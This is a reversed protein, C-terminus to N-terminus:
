QSPQGVFKPVSSESIGPGVGLQGNLHDGWCVVHGGNVIACAHRSGLAVESLGVFGGILLPTASTSTSNGKVGLQGGDNRGWCALQGGNQWACTTDHAAVVADASFTLTVKYPKNKPLSTTGQGLQGQTNAGWCWIEGSTLRACAHARGATIASVNGLGLVKMPVKSEKSTGGSGDGLQGQGNSGWCYADLNLTRVCTFAEGAVVAEAVPLDITLVPSKSATGKGDGLQGNNGLGWCAVKGDTRLGCGHTFGMAVHSYAATDDLEVPTPQDKSSAGGGAGLQGFQNDGWCWVKGKATVACASNPGLNALEVGGVKQAVASAPTPWLKGAVASDISGIALQGNENRGWCWLAGDTLVACSTTDGLALSSASGRVTAICGSGPVCQKATGCASYADKAVHLCTGANCADQSCPDGNACDAATKCGGTDTTATDTTATDTTATDTTATDTTATDTTATDTTATDAAAVDDAFASDDPTAQTCSLLALVGCGLALKATM